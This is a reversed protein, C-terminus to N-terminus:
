KKCKVKLRSKIYIIYFLVTSTRNALHKNCSDAFFLCWLVYFPTEICHYIYLILLYVFVHQITRSMCLVLPIVLHNYNLFLELNYSDSPSSSNTGFFLPGCGHQAFIKTKLLLHLDFQTFFLGITWHQFMRASLSAATAEQAFHNLMISCLREHTM